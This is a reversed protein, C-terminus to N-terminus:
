AARAKKRQCLERIHIKIEELSTRELQRVREKSINLEDGIEQLTKPEHGRLGFRYVLIKIRRDKDQSGAPVCFDLLYEITMRLQELQTEEGYGSSGAPLLDAFDGSDISVLGREKEKLELQWSRAMTRKLVWTAYTSFKNGRTYDFYDVCRMVDIYAESIQDEDLGAVKKVANAALRFNATALWNGVEEAKEFLSLASRVYGGEYKLKALYKLLNYKRSLHYEQEKNLLPERYCPLLCEPLTPKVKEVEVQLKARAQQYKVSDPIEGLFVLRSSESDFGEVVFLRKLKIKMKKECLQTENMKKLTENM